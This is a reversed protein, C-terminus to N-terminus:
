PLPSVIEPVGELATEFFHLRQEQAEDATQACFHGETQNRDVCTPTTAPDFQFFGGTLGGPLNLALPADVLEALPTDGM